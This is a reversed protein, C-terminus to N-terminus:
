TLEVRCLFSNENENAHSNNRNIILLFKNFSYCLRVLSLVVIFFFLSNLQVLNLHVESSWLGGHLVLLNILNCSNQLQSFLFLLKPPFILVLFSVFFHKRNKLDLISYGVVSFFVAFPKLSRLM